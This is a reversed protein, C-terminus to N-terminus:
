DLVRCWSVILPLFCLFSWDSLFLWLQGSFCKCPVRMPAVNVSGNQWLTVLPVVVARTGCIWGVVTFFGTIVGWNIASNMMCTVGISEGLCSDYPPLPSFLCGEPCPLHCLSLLVEGMAPPSPFPSNPYWWVFNWNHVLDLFFEGFNLYWWMSGIVMVLLLECYLVLDSSMWRRLKVQSQYTMFYWSLLLTGFREMYLIKWLIKM